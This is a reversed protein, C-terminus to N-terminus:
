FKSTINAKNLTSFIFKKGGFKLVRMNTWTHKWRKIRPFNTYQWDTSLWFSYWFKPYSELKLQRQIKKVKSKNPWQSELWRYLDWEQHVWITLKISILYLFLFFIKKLGKKFNIKLHQNFKSLGSDAM